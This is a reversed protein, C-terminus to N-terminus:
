IHILSLPQRPLANTRVFSRRALESLLKERKVKDMGTAQDRKLWYAFDKTKQEYTLSQLWQIEEQFTREKYWEIKTIM